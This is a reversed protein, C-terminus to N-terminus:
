SLYSAPGTEIQRYVQDQTFKVFQDYQESLKVNLVGEYQDRIRDEQEKLLRECIMHVQKFSFQPKDRDSIRPANQLESAQGQEGESDSSNNPSKPTRYRSGAGEENTPLLRRRRLSRIEARLYSELQEKTLRTGVSSFPSSNYAGKIQACNESKKSNSAPGPIYPSCLPTGFRPRKVSEPSHYPDHELPRKLALGCAM